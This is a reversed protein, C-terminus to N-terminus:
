LDACTPGPPPRQWEDPSVLSRNSCPAYGKNTRKDPKNPDQGHRLHLIGAYCVFPNAIARALKTLRAKSVHNKGDAAAALVEAALKKRGHYVESAVKGLVGSAITESVAASVRLGASALDERIAKVIQAPKPFLECGDCGMSPNITGDSWQIKTNISM